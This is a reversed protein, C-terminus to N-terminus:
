ILPFVSPYVLCENSYFLSQEIRWIVFPDCNPPVAVAGSAYKWELIELGDESVVLSQIKGVSSNETTDLGV